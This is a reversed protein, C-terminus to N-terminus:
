RMRYKALKLRWDALDFPTIITMRFMTKMDNIGM